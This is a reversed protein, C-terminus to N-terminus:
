EEMPRHSVETFTEGDHSIYLVYERGDQVNVYIIMSNSVVADCEMGEFEEVIEGKEGNRSAYLEGDEIYFFVQGPDSWTYAFGNEELRRSIRVPENEGEVYFLEKETNCYVLINGDDSIECSVATDRAIRVSEAEPDLADVRFFTGNKFYVVTRGDQAILFANVYRDIRRVSFDEEIVYFTMTGDPTNDVYVTNRFDRIGYRKEVRYFYTGNYEDIDGCGLLGSPTAVHIDSGTLAIREGEEPYLYFTGDTDKCIIQTCDYNFAFTDGNDATDLENTLVTEAEGDHLILLGEEPHDAPMVMYIMRTADDSVFFPIVDGEYTGLLREEEGDTLLVDHEQLARESGPVDADGEYNVMLLHRGNASVAPPYASSRESLLTRKGDRHLYLAFEGDVPDTKPEKNYAIASGDGSILAFLVDEDLYEAEGNEILYLAGGDDSSVLAIKTRDESLTSYYHMGDVSLAEGEVPYINIADDVSVITVNNDLYIHNAPEGAPASRGARMFFFVAFGILCAAALLVLAVVARAGRKRAPQAVEMYVPTGCYGCFTVDDTLQKGCNTCFM